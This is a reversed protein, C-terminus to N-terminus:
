RNGRGPRRWDGVIGVNGVAHRPSGRQVNPRTTLWPGRGRRFSVTIYPANSYCAIKDVAEHVPQAAFPM